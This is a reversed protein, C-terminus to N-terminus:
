KYYTPKRKRSAKDTLIELAAQKCFKIDESYPYEADTYNRDSFYNIFQRLEVPKLEGLIQRVQSYNGNIKSDVIYNFLEEMTTFDYQKFIPKTM